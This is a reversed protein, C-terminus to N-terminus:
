KIKKDMCIGRWQGVPTPLPLYPLTARMSKRVHYLCLLYLSLLAIQKPRKKSNKTKKGNAEGQLPM